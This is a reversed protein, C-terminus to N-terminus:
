IHILSLMYADIHLNLTKSSYVYTPTGFNEAIEILNVEECFLEDKKYEFFDM